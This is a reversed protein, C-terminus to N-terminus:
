GSTSVSLTSTSAIDAFNTRRESSRETTTAELVPMQARALREGLRDIADPVPEGTIRDLV